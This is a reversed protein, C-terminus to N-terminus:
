FIPNGMPLSQFAIFYKVMALARAPQYSPVEHGAGRVTAFTLGGKYIISYGAVDDDGNMWPYWSKQIKLKLANISLRTGSVPLVSDVDGSYVLVRIGAALMKEYIPLVTLARDSYTISSCLSYNGFTIYDHYAHLAKQVEPKNLYTTIYNDSCPDIMGNLGNGQMGMTSNSHDETCLPAYINYPDINGSEAYAQDYFINCKPTNGSANLSVFDCNKLVGEYTEDSILAHSWMYDVYGRGDTNANIVGNGQNWSYPNNSLTKGDANVHFPGIEQFAGYGLSSCGPGGNLWLILSKNSPAQAAEALYYFLSRGKKADVTVYGSYQRFAVDKPQGPLATILDDKQHQQYAFNGWKFSEFNQPEITPPRWEQRINEQTNFRTAKLHNRLAQGQSLRDGYSPLVVLFLAVLFLLSKRM